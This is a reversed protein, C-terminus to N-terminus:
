EHSMAIVDSVAFTCFEPFGGRGGSGAKAAVALDHLQMNCSAVENWSNGVGVHFRTLNEEM